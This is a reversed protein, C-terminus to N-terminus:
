CSLKVEWGLNLGIRNYFIFTLLTKTGYKQTKFVRINVLNVSKKKKSSVLYKRLIQLRSYISLCYPQTDGAYDHYSAYARFKM